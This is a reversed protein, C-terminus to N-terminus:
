KGFVARVVKVIHQLEEESLSSGSPLCVGRNFVDIGVDIEGSNIYDCDAFVPHCHMPNWVRRSEINEKELAEIVDDPSVSIGEDITIVSLWCSSVAGVTEPSFKIPLDGLEKKYYENVFRRQSVREDLTLMQGRGIGASINSMRYNYGVEKHLYYNVPEKSQNAWFHMKEIAQTDESCAMGGGSTTIVKNGNFSLINIKGFTGCKKGKYEAGLAEAADEIVTVGYSECIPLLEDFNAPNGYLDVIIVAKPLKGLKEYKEFAKKLAVPSMNFTEYDSDIFVLKAGIYVAPNCSGAFTLDSCFVVDDKQVGVYMLALHMAATGSSLALSKNIGLYKSMDNEFGTLNPGFPAIWNTDFAENIFNIERGNMHPPSLFIRESVITVEKM